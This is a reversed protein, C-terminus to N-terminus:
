HIITSPQINWAQFVPQLLERIFAKFLTLNERQLARSIARLGSLFLSVMRPKGKPPVRVEGDREKQEGELVCFVYAFAIPILLTEIRKPDTVRTRELDFANSKWDKHMPEITFRQGYVGDVATPDPSTTAVVLPEEYEHGWTLLVNMAFTSDRTVMQHHLIHRSGKKMAKILSAVKTESTDEGRLYMSAKLRFTVNVAFTMHLWEALRPSAFERDAVVHIHLPRGTLWPMQQLAAIVPFLVQKWEELSSCGPKGSVMWYLPLARGKYSVAVSLISIHCQRRQWDTRDVILIIETLPALLPRMLMILPRVTASPSIRPNSLFRRVRQISAMVDTNADCLYEGLKSLHAKNNELLCVILEVLTTRLPKSLHFGTSAFLTLITEELYVYTQHMGTSGM